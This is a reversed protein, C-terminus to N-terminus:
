PVLKLVKRLHDEMMRVDHTSSPAPLSQHRGEVHRDSQPAPNGNSITPPTAAAEEAGQSERAQDEKVPTMLMQKLARTKAQRQLDDDNNRARMSPIDPASQRHAETRQKVPISPLMEEGESQESSGDMEMMFMEKETAGSVPKRPRVHSSTAQSLSQSRNGSDSQGPMTRVHSLPSESKPAQRSMEARHANFFVDLPSEQCRQSAAEPQPPPTAHAGQEQNEKNPTSQMQTETALSPVSKSFARPMPLSSAAPSALFNPGAYVQKSLTRVEPPTGRFTNSGSEAAGHFAGSGDYPPISGSIEISRTKTRSPSYNGHQAAGSDSYYGQPPKHPPVVNPKRPLRKRSSSSSTPASPQSLQFAQDTTAHQHSAHLATHTEQADLQGAPPSTPFAQPRKNPRQKRKSGKPSPTNIQDSM